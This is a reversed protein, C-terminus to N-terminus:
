MWQDFHLCVATQTRKSLAATFSQPSWLDGLPPQPRSQRRAWSLEDRERIRSGKKPKTRLAERIFRGYTFRQRLTQKM